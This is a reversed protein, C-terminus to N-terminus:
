TAPPSAARPGASHALTGSPLVLTCVVATGVLVM